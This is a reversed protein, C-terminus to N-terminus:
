LVRRDQDKILRRASKIIFAFSEDLVAKFLKRVAAAMVHSTSHRLIQLGDEDDATVPVVSETGSPIQASLDLLTETGGASVRCAIASKFRKGSLAQKLVEACSAGEGVEILKDEVSIQM